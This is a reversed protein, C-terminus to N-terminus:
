GTFPRNIKGLRRRNAKSKHVEPRQPLLHMSERRCDANGKKNSNARLNDKWSGPSSNVRWKGLSLSEAQVATFIRVHGLRHAATRHLKALPLFVERHSPRVRDAYRSQRREVQLTRDWRPKRALSQRRYRQRLRRARPGM